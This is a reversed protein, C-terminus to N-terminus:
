AAWRTKLQLIPSEFFKWSNSAILFSVIIALAPALIEAIYIHRELGIKRILTHSQFVEFVMPHILYLGFSIKGVYRLAQNTFFRFQWGLLALGVLWSDM